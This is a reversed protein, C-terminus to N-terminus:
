TTMQARSMASLWTLPNTTSCGVGPNEVVLIRSLIASRTTCFAYMVMSSARTGSALRSCFAFENRSM